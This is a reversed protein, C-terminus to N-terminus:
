PQLCVVSNMDGEVINPLPVGWPNSAACVRGDPTIVVDRFFLGRTPLPYATWRKTAPEFRFMRDSMNATIWVAQTKPDVALAYPSEVAGETLVPITYTQYKMTKTDLRTIKGDGYGPIWYGGDRDFRARRPSYVPPQWEQVKYTVPDIRGIMNGYLTTYWVSGDLPSIDIGYPARIRDEKYAMTKPLEIIITKGTSPDFRGVQNSVYITFWIIGKSDFRLTHPYMANGGVHHVQYTHKVPDFVGIEGGISGTFYFKGDPGLQLSHNGHSVAPVWSPLDSQGAFTGHIPVGLAPLKIVETKNTKPDTVYVQDINQEVTYFTGNPPYFDTDHAVIAGPLKWEIVRAGLAAEDVALREAPPAAVPTGDFARSMVSAYEDVKSDSDYEANRTMIRMFAKWESLPRPRRTIPNGIQHCGTCDGQFRERAAQTPLKIRTFHISAPLSDSIEKAGALRRLTFSHDLTAGAAVQIAATSDADLAARARLSLAGAQKTDLRYHGAANTYVTESVLRDTSYLTVMAGRVPKGECAVTGSIVAAQAAGTGLTGALALIAFRRISLTM